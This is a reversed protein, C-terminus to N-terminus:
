YIEADATWVFQAEDIKNTGSGQTFNFIFGYTSSVYTSVSTNAYTGGNTISTFISSNTNATLNSQTTYVLVNANNRKTVIFPVTNIRGSLLAAAYQTEPNAEFYRQCYRLTESILRIEFPTVITGVELQVGTVQIFAGPVQLWNTAGTVAMPAYGPSATWTTTSAVNARTSGFSLGFLCVEVSGNTGAGWTGITCPPVYVIYRNWSNTLTVLNAFYTNDVKSRLVVSYNGAVTTNAYFSFVMPKATTQGFRLDFTGSAECTQVLPCIWTNDYVGDMPRTVYVNSCNSFGNPSGIPVDQKVIMSVNSTTLNGVDAHWRDMVWANSNLSSTNSVTLTNGRTTVRFTGNILRNRFGAFNDYTVHNSFYGQGTVYLSYPPSGNPVSGGGVALNSQILVNSSINLTPGYVGLSSINSTILTRTATNGTSVDLNYAPNVAGIGISNPFYINSGSSIWQTGPTGGPGGTALGGGQLPTITLYTGGISSTTAKLTGSAVAFLDLYYYKTVDTVNFPIEILETPNQTIQTTYRYLYGQDTGHIDAANSGLALGTINDSGAFVASIIYAGPTNFFFNGNTTVRILTSTGNITFGNSLGVSLPYTTGYLAGTYPTQIAIDGPLSFYYGGGAGLPAGISTYVNGSVIINGTLYTNGTAVGPLINSTVTLYQVNTAVAAVNNSYINSAYLNQIYSNAANSTGARMLNFQAVNAGLGGYINAQLMTVTTANLTQLNSVGSVVLTSTVNLFSVNESTINGSASNITIINASLLNAFTSVTLTSINAGTYVNLSLVNESFVNLSATNLTAINALTGTLTTINAGLSVNLFSVNETQINASLLNATLINASVTNSITTVTLTTINAGTFVNLSGVNGSTINASATNLTVANASFLNSLGSVTLQTVNAGTFVNLSGVNGSTVNASATNLTVANASFLNSLGSVTLQTVNAGTFVNLSGVNGSTLNASATNLTVANARYLNSLGSVTLQTVNAGTFVNLSGVNGTTVYLTDGTFASGTFGSSATITTGQFTGGTFATGTFGTSATITTGSHAGGYFTGGTFAAGTFGTSATITTGSVTTGQLTGGYFATGTFGSSAAITTGTITTGQFTGGTFAAGTFGTSATITTGSVTSGQFTGGTFAAGTFGTSATITTGSMTSGQFTGGSFTTGSFSPSIIPGGATFSYGSFTYGTFATGTFGTSATITTGSFTSGQFTGGTFAGGSFGVATMSGSLTIGSFYAQNAYINTTTVSNSVYANGLVYMATTSSPPATITPGVYVPGLLSQGSTSYMRFRTTGYNVLWSDALSQNALVMNQSADKTLSVGNGAGISTDSLNIAVSTAGTGGIEIQSTPNNMNLGFRGTNTMLLSGSDSVFKVPNKGSLATVSLSNAWVNGTTVSNSVALNSLLGVSTINPQDPYLVSDALPVDGVINSANINSLAYGNGSFAGATLVGSVALNTLTGVSTINVQAPNTVVGATAITGTVNSARVNAIGSGDSTGLLGNVYLTTLTGVSTINPQAAQSVVLAVNASAVNGVLNSSNLNSIGSGNSAILVGGNVTLSTLTGVSTINPQANQTVVQAAYVTGYINSSNLNSIASGNSITALGQVNLVTLTGVSTINPQSSVTVSAATRVTGNINQSNLNTIGYGDGTIQGSVDLSVLTGLSTINSQTNGSVTLAVTSNAVNGTVNSGNINSIGSGNSTVLLGQVNLGTLTGVSTINPQSAQSVVLAVNASAVNGVLNSSNLNSIGSGNSAILVGGNVKLSTLTGVSTINPQSAGSVVLAVNANAVNGVLNSSNLNSIASGNSITVQGQVVLNTLVGVSTINPQAAGTVVLALTASAVNGFVSSGSINSLRAANGYLNSAYVSNMNSTGYVNLTNLGFITVTNAFLNNVNMTTVNATGLVYLNSGTPPDNLTGISVGNATAINFLSTPTWQTQVNVANSVRGWQDIILQPINSADGYIDAIVGTTELYASNLTGSTINSANLNAIGSGDGVLFQANVEVFSTTGTFTASGNSTFTTVTLTNQVWVNGVSAGNGSGGGGTITVTVPSQVITTSGGGGGCGNTISDGGM